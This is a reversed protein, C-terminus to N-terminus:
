ETWMVNRVTGSLIGLHSVVSKVGDTSEAAIRVADREKESNVVGWLHVVGDSVLPNIWVDGPLNESRLVGIIRARIEADSVDGAAPITHKHAVLARLLDARSVIGVVTGDEVVPVRKIRRRELLEAIDGTTADGTITVVKRTMVDAATLGHVKLYEDVNDEPATILRLWWSHHPETGSEPRRMLDGESVIGVLRGDGDVVPVASIRNDLLLKAVKDVPTDGPVTIPDTTMIDRAIM